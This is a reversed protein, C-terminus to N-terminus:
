ELCAELLVFGWNFGIDFVYVGFITVLQLGNKTPQFVLLCADSCIGFLYYNAYRQLTTM